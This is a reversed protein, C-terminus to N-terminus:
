HCFLFYLSVHMGGVANQSHSPPLNFQNEIRAPRPPRGPVRPSLTIGNNSTKEEGPPTATSAAARSQGILMEQKLETNSRNRPPVLPPPSSTKKEVFQKSSFNDASHSLPKKYMNQDPTTDDANLRVAKYMADSDINLHPSVVESTENTEQKLKEILKTDTRLGRPTNPASKSIFSKRENQKQGREKILQSRQSIKDNMERLCNKVTELWKEKEQQSTASLIRCYSYNHLEM